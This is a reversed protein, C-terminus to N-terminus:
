RGIELAKMAMSKTANMATVNAEYARTASIMNIMESVIDVNPMQVYGDKDADPHGPDYVKKFPTKDEEIAVVEVGGGIKSRRKVNELIQSFNANAQKFIPVQRRYPTGNSTRTTNANAINKSIIDMRLREATLGSASVNISNFISM